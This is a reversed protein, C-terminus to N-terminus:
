RRSRLRTQDNTGINTVLATKAAVHVRSPGRCGEVGTLNPSPVTTIPTANRGNRSMGSPSFATGRSASDPRRSSKVIASSSMEGTPSDSDVLSAGWRNWM